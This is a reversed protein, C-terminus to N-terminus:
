GADRDAHVPVRRGPAAARRRLTPHVLPGGCRRRHGGRRGGTGDGGAAAVGRCLLALRDVREAAYAALWMGVMGGLSLGAYHARPVDLEDLLRLLERGLLDITYPGSLVASRGHGLHDYRIVRFRGALAPLQPEWMARTTGLSGGLVLVPAGPPGDVAAHLRSSM